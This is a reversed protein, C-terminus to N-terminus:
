RSDADHWGELPDFVYWGHEDDYRVRGRLIIAARSLSTRSCRACVSLNLNKRSLQFHVLQQPSRDLLVVRPANRDHL